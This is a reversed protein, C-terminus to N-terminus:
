KFDGVIIKIKENNRQSKRYTETEGGYVCESVCALLANQVYM